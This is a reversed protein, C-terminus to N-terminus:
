FRVQNRGNMKAEYLGLDARNILSTIDDERMYTSIGFSATKQGVPIFDTNAISERIKEALLATQELDCHPVIVMFEEGGWRGVTDVQRTNKRLVKALQVLVKDGILHGHEDNVSKFRDMDLLIISFTRNYRQAQIFQEELVQDLRNRNALQTLHDTTSLRSAELHSAELESTVADIFRMLRSVVRVHKNAYPDDFDPSRQTSLIHSVRKPKSPKGERIGVVVMTSNLLSLSQNGYFEGYTYFGFTPSLNEFPKTEMNVGDQMLFRRCGCTFLFITQPSFNAMNNHTSEASQVILDLDGYGIRFTEGEHVDAVFQLGGDETSFVPVRAIMGDRRDLLIPFELANMFFNDDNQIGLYREYVSFAPKHDIEDVVLDTVKTIEMTRSLARWGLYTDMDIHLDEGSLIVAVAGQEYSHPHCYVQSYDLSAYDGAGGGFKPYDATTENLGNVLDTANITLPTSLLLVGCIISNHQEILRGLERGTQTESGNECALSIATINSTEFTTIGIVTGNTVLEGHAIEGITSSGVITAQPIYQAILNSLQSIFSHDTESTYIQVLISQSRNLAELMVEDTLFQLLEAENQYIQSFHHIM